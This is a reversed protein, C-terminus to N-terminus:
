RWTADRHSPTERSNCGAAAAQRALRLNEELSRGPLFLSSSGGVLVDAGAAVMPPIKELSVNGDVQIPIRRRRGALYRRADGIKEIASPVMEQGAYGPNVTMLLLFDMRDLVYRLSSLPTAPNLAVGAEMGLERIRALQRDVHVASELHVSVRHVGHEALREVFFANDEVMLHVDLPLRTFSGLDAVVNLGIPLNPVFHADMLDVHIMDVGAKELERVQSGLQLSDACM